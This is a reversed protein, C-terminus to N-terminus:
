KLLDMLGPMLHVIMCRNEVDVSRICERIAPLLLERGEYDVTYVDNAGTQIVDKLVGLTEGEDTVVKMGILDAIFFENTGLKVAHERTVYLGKRRFREVDNISSFEAFRLIVMNKAYKVGTVHLLLNEREPELIVEKLKKFRKVDDTTPFVKVEGAIGHTGTIVGVQLYQEMGNEGTLLLGPQTHM